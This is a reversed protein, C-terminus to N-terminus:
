ESSTESDASYIHIQLHQILNLMVPILNLIVTQPLYTRCPPPKQKTNNKSKKDSQNKKEISAFLWYNFERRNENKADAEIIM